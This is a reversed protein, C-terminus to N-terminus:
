FIMKHFLPQQLSSSKNKQTKTLKHRKIDAEGQYVRSLERSYFVCMFLKASLKVPYESCWKSDFKTGAAVRGLKNPRRSWGCNFTRGGNSKQTPTLIFPIRMLTHNSAKFRSVQCTYIHLMYVGVSKELCGEKWQKHMVSVGTYLTYVVIIYGYKM